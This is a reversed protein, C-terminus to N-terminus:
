RSCNMACIWNCNKTQWSDNVSKFNELKLFPREPMANGHYCCPAIQGKANIYVSKSILHDCSIKYLKSEVEFNKHTKKYRAIGAPIDYSHPKKSGDAPLIWHTINKGEKDLVPGFNRGHDEVIFNKFNLQKALMKAEEIQHANHLFPVWKWTAHGGLDVFWKVREMIKDWKVDQRYLHNTDELGDISFMVEINNRALSQWTTKSGISGNTVIITRCGTLMVLDLIHPNMMSDGYGGNFYVVERKPFNKLCDKFKEVTLHTENLVGKVNYGFLNRPCLPCRANCFTSAEVHIIKIIM